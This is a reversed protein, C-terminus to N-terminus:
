HNITKKTISYFGDQKRKFQYEHSFLPPKVTDTVTKFFFANVTCSDLKGDFKLKEPMNLSINWFFLSTDKPLTYLAIFHTNGTSDKAETFSILYDNRQKIPNEKEIQSSRNVARTLHRISRPKDCGSFVILLLIIYAFRKM